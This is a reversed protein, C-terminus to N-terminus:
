YGDLFNELATEEFGPDGILDDNVEKAIQDWLDPNEDRTCLFWGEGTIYDLEISDVIVCAPSGPYDRTQSEGTVLTCHVTIDLFLQQEGWEELVTRFSRQRKM